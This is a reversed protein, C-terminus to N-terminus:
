FLFSFSYVCCWLSFFCRLFFFVSHSVFWSCAHLLHCVSLWCFYCVSVVVLLGLFLIGPIGLCVNGYLRAVLCVVRVFAVGGLMRWRLFFYFIYLPIGSFYQLPFVYCLILVGYSDPKWVEYFLYLIYESRYAASHLVLFFLTRIICLGVPLPPSIQSEGEMPLIRHGSVVCLTTFRSYM